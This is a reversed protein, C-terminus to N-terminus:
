VDAKGTDLLMNVVTYHGNEAAWLLPTRGDNDRSDTEVRGTDLLLKVAAKHGHQAARSLLTHGNDDTSIVDIGKELFLEAIQQHG